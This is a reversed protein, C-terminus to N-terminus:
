AKVKLRYFCVFAFLLATIPIGALMLRIGLIALEPQQAADRVYGTKELLFSMILAQLSVGWRIIFGNMGFYMGERRAGSVVEDQDIVEALLIELLVMLGALSFGIFLSTVYTAASTSIFLLPLLSLTYLVIAALIAQRPGYKTTWRAWVYLSPIATLFVIGLMYTNALEPANLVYKNFFPIAAPVLAFTFQVLFGGTVYIVFMRNRMTLRLAKVLNIPKTANVNKREKAGAATVLLFVASCLGFVLGMSEWGYKSYILPPLAVGVLMGVIGFMQKWSAAAARERITIFMEPFLASYNLIVLVYLIDFLIVIGFFYYIISEQPALPFWVLTFVAALPISGFAIYPIRRGWRTRYRDSVYGFLPNLIAGIIGHVVMVIGVHSPRAGLIDVYYYVIYAAFMQAMVNASFNGSAYFITRKRALPQEGM